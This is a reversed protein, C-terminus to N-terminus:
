PGSKTAIWADVHKELVDLPVAGQELMVDHLERLDFKAGLKAVARARLEKMKLEGIKYALAQGPNIAYRDIENAVDLPEKPDNALFYDIAKQRDWKMTHMGTDIVLRVARWM